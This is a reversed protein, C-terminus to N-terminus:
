GGSTWFISVCVASLYILGHTELRNHLRHAGVRIALIPKDSVERLKTGASRPIVMIELFDFQKMSDKSHKKADQFNKICNKIFTLTHHVERDCTRNM